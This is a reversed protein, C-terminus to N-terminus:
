VSDGDLLVLSGVCIATKFSFSSPMGRFQVRRGRKEEIDYWFLCEDYQEMLVKKGDKSYVLPKCHEVPLPLAGQVITYLRTWSSAVMYENMVWVDVLTHYVNVSVCICGKLVALVLNSNGPASNFSTTCKRFEETALDFALLTESSGCWPTVLWYFAGNLSVSRPTSRTILELPWEKEVRKWSHARLSYIKLECVRQISGRIQRFFMVIRMVKYDDNIPDHGFAFFPFGKGYFVFPKDIPEIPLKKYRRILPNWIGIENESRTNHICVLGNCCTLIQASRKLDGLPQRIKLARGFQDDDNLPVLLCDQPRELKDELFIITQERNAVISLELHMKIFDPDNILASWPQSVCQFRVLPKVPLRLLIETILEQPLSSM